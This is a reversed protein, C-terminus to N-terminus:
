CGAAMEARRIAADEAADRYWGVVEEWQEPTCREEDPELVKGSGHCTECARDYMGQRYEDAFDEGLEAFESGTIGDRFCDTKGNGHCDDCIVWKAPVILDEHIELTTM